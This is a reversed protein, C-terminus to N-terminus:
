IGTKLTVHDKLFLIYEFLFIIKFQVLIAAKVKNKFLNICGQRASSEIVLFVLELTFVTCMYVTSFTLKCLVSKKTKLFKIVLSLSM